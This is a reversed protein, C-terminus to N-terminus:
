RRKNKEFLSRAKNISRPSEKKSSKNNDLEDDPDPADQRRLQKARKDSKVLGGARGKGKHQPKGGIESKGMYPPITRSGRKQELAAAKKPETKAPIVVEAEASEEEYYYRDIEGKFAAEEDRLRIVQEQYDDLIQQKRQRFEKELEIKEMRLQIETPGPNIANIRTNFDAEMEQKLQLYNDRLEQRKLGYDPMDAETEMVSELSDEQAAVSSVPMTIFLILLLYRM